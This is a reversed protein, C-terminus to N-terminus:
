KGSNGGRFYACGLERSPEVKRNTTYMRLICKADTLVMLCAMLSALSVYYWEAREGTGLVTTDIHTAGAGLAM